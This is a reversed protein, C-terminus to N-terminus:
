STFSLLLNVIFAIDVTLFIVRLSHVTFVDITCSLAVCLLLHCVIDFDGINM